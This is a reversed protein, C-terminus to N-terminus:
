IVAFMNSTDVIFSKDSKVIRDFCKSVIELQNLLRSPSPNEAFKVCKLPVSHSAIKHKDLHLCLARIAAQHDGPQDGFSIVESPPARLGALVSSIAAIKWETPDKDKSFQRAYVLDIRFESLLSLFGKMHTESVLEVWGPQANTVVVTKGKDCSLRLLSRLSEIIAIFDDALGVSFRRSRGKLWDSPCLTDDFDFIILPNSM